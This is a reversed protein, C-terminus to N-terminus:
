SESEDADDEVEELTDSVLRKNAARIDDQIKTFGDDLHKEIIDRARGITDTKVVDNAASRGCEYIRRTMHNMLFELQEDVKAKEVLNARDVELRIAERKKKIETLRAQEKKLQGAYDSGEDEQHEHQGYRKHFKKITNPAAKVNAMIWYSIRVM